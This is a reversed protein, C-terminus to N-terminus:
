SNSRVAHPLRWDKGYVERLRMLYCGPHLRDGEAAFRLQPWAHRKEGHILEPRQFPERKNKFTSNHM